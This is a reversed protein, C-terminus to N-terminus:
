SIIATETKTAYINSGVKIDSFTCRCLKTAAKYASYRLKAVLETGENGEPCSVSHRKM